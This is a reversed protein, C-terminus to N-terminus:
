CLKGALDHATTRIATKAKALFCDYLEFTLLPEPLQRLYLKLLDCVLAEEM